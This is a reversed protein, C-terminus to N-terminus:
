QFTVYDIELKMPPRGEDTFGYEFAPLGQPAKCDLPEAVDLPVQVGSQPVQVATRLTAAGFALGVQAQQPGLTANGLVAVPSVKDGCTGNVAVRRFWVKAGSPQPLDRVVAIRKPELVQTHIPATPESWVRVNHSGLPKKCDVTGNGVIDFTKTASDAALVVPTNTTQGAAVLNITGMWQNSTNNRMAVRVKPPGGCRTEVPVVTVEIAKVLAVAPKARATPGPSPAPSPRTPAAHAGVTALLLGACAISSGVNRM